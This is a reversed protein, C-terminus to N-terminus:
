LKIFKGTLHRNETIISIFYLGKPLQAVSRATENGSFKLIEKGTTDTIVISKATLHAEMPINLFDGVPNPNIKINNLAFDSKPMGLSNGLRCEYTITDQDINLSAVSVEIRLSRFVLNGNTNNFYNFVTITATGVNGFVSYALDISQVSKMRTVGGSFAGQGLDNTSLTGHADMSTEIDGSFTGTYTTGDSIYSYSGSLDDTTASDEYNSPYSGLLANNTDYNLTLGTMSLRTISVTNDSARIYSKSEDNTGTNTTTIVFTTGSYNTLEETTPSSHIDSTNGTKELSNFNWVLNEGTASQDITASSTVIAYNTATTSFFNNITSQAYSISNLLLLIFLLGLKM